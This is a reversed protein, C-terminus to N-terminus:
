LHGREGACRADVKQRGAEKKAAIVALTPLGFAASQGWCLKSDAKELTAEQVLQLGSRNLRPAM